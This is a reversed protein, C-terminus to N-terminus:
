GAGATLPVPVATALLAEVPAPDVAVSRVLRTAYDRFCAVMDVREPRLLWQLQLGDMVAVVERALAACDTDPRVTGRAVGHRLGDEVSGTVREYRDTFWTRAPHDDTVSEGSLATYIQVLGGLRRNRDVLRLLSVLLRPGSLGDPDLEALWERDLRDRAELVATLLHRKTPFHHLLGTQSIGVQEAIGALSARHYGHDAFVVMAAYLIQERRADGRTVM